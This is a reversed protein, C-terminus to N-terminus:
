AKSKAIAIGSLFLVAMLSFGGLSFFPLTIGTMPLAKTVGAINLFIQV